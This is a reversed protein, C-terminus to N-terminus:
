SMLTKAIDIVDYLDTKGDRNIDALLLTDEDLNNSKILHKSIEIADYLDVVDDNTADGWTPQISYIANTSEAGDYLYMYVPDVKEIEEYKQTMVENLAMVDEYLKIYGGSESYVSDEISPSIEFYEERAAMYTGEADIGEIYEEIEPYNEIDFNAILSNDNFYIKFENIIYGTNTSYEYLVESKDVLGRIMLKEAFDIAEDESMISTTNLVYQNDAPEVTEEFIWENGVIDIYQTLGYNIAKYEEIECNIGLEEAVPANEDPMTVVIGAYELSEVVRVPRNNYTTDYYKKYSNEASVSTVTMTATIVAASLIAITKKLKKM